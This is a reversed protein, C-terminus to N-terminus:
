DSWVGRASVNQALGGRGFGGCGLAARPARACRPSAEYVPPLYGDALPVAGGVGQITEHIFGAVRGPTAHAILDAVDAAYAPGDGGHGGRYADPNIAHRVGFGHPYNYKWTSRAAAPPRPPAAPFRPAHPHPPM